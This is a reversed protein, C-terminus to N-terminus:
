PNNRAWERRRDLERLASIKVKAEGFKEPIVRYGCETPHFVIAGVSLMYLEEPWCVTEIEKGHYNQRITEKKGKFPEFEKEFQKVLARGYENDINYTEEYVSKTKENKSFGM